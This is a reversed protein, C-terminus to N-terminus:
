RESPGSGIEWTVFPSYVKGPIYESLLM